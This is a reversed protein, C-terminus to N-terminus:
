LPKNSSQASIQDYLKAFAIAGEIAAQKDTCMPGVLQDFRQWWYRLSSEEGQYLSFLTYGFPLSKPESSLNSGLEEVNAGIKQALEQSDNLFMRKLAKRHGAHDKWYVQALADQIEHKKKNFFVAIREIHDSRNEFRYRLLINPPRCYPPQYPQVDQSM